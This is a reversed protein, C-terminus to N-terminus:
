NDDEPLREELKKIRERLEANERELREITQRMETPTTPVAQAPPAPSPKDATRGAANRLARATRAASSEGYEFLEGSKALAELPEAASLDGREGLAWIAAARVARIPESLYSILQRTIETNKRDLRGLARIASPRASLPKGPESWERVLPTARPDGLIGFDSLARARLRDDPSDTNLAALLLDYVDKVRLTVLSDLAATRVLYASDEHLAKELREAVLADGKYASLQEAAVRRVEAQPDALAAIISDRASPGVFRRLSLLAQARVGWFSDAHAAEGLAAAAADQDRWERLAVAADARDPVSAAHRLQYVWEQWSKQFHIEKLVQNGRDFLVLLPREDAALSFTEAAQSIIIPFLQRGKPTTIEVEIPVRFLPVDGAVKQTQTVALKVQRAAEDYTWAVEFKPAGARYIWQEFFRDVNRGTAEEFSQVLDATVVNQARHKELFHQLGRYFDAPGLEKRLMLMVMGAKGYLNGQYQDTDAFDRTVIPVTFLRTQRLWSDRAEWISYAAQDAGYAHEEWVTEFATALGENLWLHGWDKCTVLDGFWQHALEHALLSDSKELLEGAMLPHILSSAALTSASTNEMGDVVFEDVAVQSYKDWPYAVGLVDSFYELMERTRAFTPSIEASSGRPVYYTVPKSRWSEEARDFQGAVISILYTAHPVDQRWHWTRLGDGSDSVELLRGNSITEWGVPVSLLTETTARDNPYDYIPIYYRTDEAEGQTWIEVPRAPYDKDPLVFFLGRKPRGQYRITVEYTQGRRAPPDLPVLVKAATTESKVAKGDLLVSEITLDVSDFELRAVGDRLAALRHTVEGFIRRHQTDFRMSLRVHQLDYDRDRAYPEDARLAPPLLFLSGLVLLAGARFRLRIRTAPTLSLINL